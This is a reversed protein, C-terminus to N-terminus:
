LELQPLEVISPKVPPSERNQMYLDLKCLNKIYSVLGTFSSVVEDHEEIEKFGINWLVGVLPDNMLDVEMTNTVKDGIMDIVSVVQLNMPQKM